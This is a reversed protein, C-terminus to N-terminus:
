SLLQIQKDSISFQTKDFEVLPFNLNQSFKKFYKKLQKNLEEFNDFETHCIIETEAANLQCNKAASLTFYLWDSTERAVFSNALQLKGDKIVVIYILQSYPLAVLKNQCESNISTKSLLKAVVHTFVLNKLHKNCITKLSDSLSFWLVADIDTIDNKLIEHNQKHRFLFSVNKELFTEESFTKPVLTFDPTEVIIETSLFNLKLIQETELWEEFRKPLLNRNSVQVPSHKFALLKNHKSCVVSFSFGDLSCQISLKYNTSKEKEFSNDTVINQM